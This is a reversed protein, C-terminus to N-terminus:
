RETGRKIKRGQILKQSITEFKLNKNAYGCWYRLKKFTNQLKQNNIKKNEFKM